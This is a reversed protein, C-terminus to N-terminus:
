PNAMAATATRMWAESFGLPDFTALPDQPDRPSTV